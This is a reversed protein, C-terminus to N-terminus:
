GGKCCYHVAREVFVDEVHGADVLYDLCHKVVAGRAHPVVLEEQAAVQVLAM